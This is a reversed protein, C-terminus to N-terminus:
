LRFKRYAGTFSLYDRAPRAESYSARLRLAAIDQRGTAIPPLM